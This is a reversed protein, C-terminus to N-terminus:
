KAHSQGTKRVENVSFVRKEVTHAESIQRLNLETEWNHGVRQSGMSQLVGPKGTRWWSGLSEFEHGDFGQHWGVMEDETMRKEEQRWGKGVEPDKGILQSKGSPTWFIPTEAEVDIRGTFMWSQNGKPNVPKDYILQGFVHPSIESSEIKDWEDTYRHIHWNKIAISKYYLQFDPLKIGGAKYKKKLFTKVVQPRKHNWLCNLIVQENKTFYTMSINITVANFRWITKSPISM